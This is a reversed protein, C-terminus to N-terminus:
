HHNANALLSFASAAVAPVQGNGIAFLRDLRDAMGDDMGCFQTAVDVWDNESGEAPEERCRWAIGNGADKSKDWGDFGQSDAVIWIRERQHPLNATRAGMVGWKADYGMAALDGLVQGLGRCVLNPSNEAFIYRPRIEDAIRAMEGWMSSKKGSIGAGRGASSIDQCPFGGCLIDVKGRWPRGDFTRVDDWIPFRPLLGDAQRALLGRRNHDEIEVACVPRHGMLIGGLIGGGRGAFLHLENM